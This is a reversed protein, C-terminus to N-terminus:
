SVLDERERRRIQSTGGRRKRLRDSGPKAREKVAVSQLLSVALAEWEHWQAPKLFFGDAELRRRTTTPLATGTLVIVRQQPSRRSARFRILLDEGSQRPLNFDLIVLDFPPECRAFEWLAVGADAESRVDISPDFLSIAECLLRADGPNDEVHLLRFTM